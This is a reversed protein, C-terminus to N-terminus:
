RHDGKFAWKEPQLKRDIWELPWFFVHCQEDAIRYHDRSIEMIPEGDSLFLFDKSPTERYIGDPVALAVYGGVYLVALSLVIAVILPARSQTM